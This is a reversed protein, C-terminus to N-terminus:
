NISKISKIKELRRKFREEESFPTNLFIEVLKNAKEEDLYDAPLCLVNCDDDNRAMRVQQEDFGLVSRINQYRNAVIDVGVGNRCFFLGFDGEKIKQAAQSAFDVFDDEEDLATNGCDEFELKLNQIEFKLNEKLSYGGHDSALYIM